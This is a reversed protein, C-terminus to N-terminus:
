SQFLRSYLRDHTAAFLDLLPATQALDEVGLAGCTSLVQDLAPALAAQLAQAQHTGAIGLRVAASVVGRLVLHLHLRQADALDVDLARLVAGFLPAHHLKSRAARAQDRLSAIREPFIRASTDLLARGQTRSARNSVHNPLFSENRADLAALRSPDRHAATVLPLSGHGAQWLVERAFGGLEVAGAHMAAELGASHAFGGSPFASDALQLVLWSPM